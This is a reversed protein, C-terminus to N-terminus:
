ERLRAHLIPYLACIVQAAFEVFGMLSGIPVLQAFFGAGTLASGIVAESLRLLTLMVGGMMLRTAQDTPVAFRQVAWGTVWWAYALLLPIEILVLLDRSLGHQVLIQRLTGLLFGLGFLLVYFAIGAQVSRRMATM